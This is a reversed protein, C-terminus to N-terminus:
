PTRKIGDVFAVWAGATMVVVAGGSRKSDRVPVVGPLGDAVEVCVGGDTNSHSSKRWRASALDIETSAM